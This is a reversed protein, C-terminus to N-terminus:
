NRAPLREHEYISHFKSLEFLYEIEPSKGVKALCKFKSCTGQDHKSLHTGQEHRSMGHIGQDHRSMDHIGKDHRSLDHIDQDHTGQDHM